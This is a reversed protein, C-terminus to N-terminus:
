QEGTMIIELVTKPEDWHPMHGANPFHHVAIKPSLVPADRWDIIADRHGILLRIPIRDALASLATTIDVAQRGNVVLSGALDALRGRALDKYIRAITEESSTAARDSLRRLLHALQGQSGPRAMGNIFESDIFLGLGAPAILTLSTALGQQALGVAVVAGLSHAVLPMPQGAALESAFPLTVRVVDDVTKAEAATEGHAPLDIIVARRGGRGIGRALQDFTTRDGAFGHLLLMPTGTAPGYGDFAIVGAGDGRGVAEVDRLEVRGRRGTGRLAALDIGKRAAARRAPPTARIPGGTNTLTTHPLAPEPRPPTAAPEASEPGASSVWDDAGELDIKALPEGVRVLDGPTVLTEVLRGPGLAPYEVATKDTEFEVLPDGRRFAHGTEVLWASVTGEEMTEGLRPMTLTVTM